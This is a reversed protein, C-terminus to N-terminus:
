LPIKERAWVALRLADALDDLKKSDVNTMETQQIGAGTFETAFAIARKKRERYTLKREINGIARM